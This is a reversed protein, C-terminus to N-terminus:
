TVKALLACANNHKAIASCYLRGSGWCQWHWSDRGCQQCSCAMVYSCCHYERFASGLCKRPLDGVLVHQEIAEHQGDRQNHFPM